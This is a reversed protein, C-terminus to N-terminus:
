VFHAFDPWLTPDFDQCLSVTRKVDEEFYAALKQREAPEPQPIAYVGKNVRNQYDRARFRDDVGLFRYALALQAEPEKLLHEYQLLLIQDRSFYQYLRALGISYLSHLVAETYFSFTHLLYRQKETADRFLHRGRKTTLHNLHSLFRDIPNRLILLIKANPAALALQELCTPYALYQVSFEGCIVGPPTAFAAHYTAIADGPLNRYQFHSFYQTEKRNPNEFHIRPHVIQPHQLLLHHFFSTGSKPSGIGVFDPAKTTWGHTPLPYFHAQGFPTTMANVSAPEIKQENVPLMKTLKGVTHNTKAKLKSALPVSRAKAKIKTQIKKVAAQHLYPSRARDLWWRLSRHDDAGACIRVMTRQFQPGVVKGQLWGMYLDYSSFLLKDTENRLKQHADIQFLDRTSTNHFLVRERSAAVHHYILDGYIGGMWYHFSRQNSRLLRHIPLGEAEAVWTFHALTDTREASHTNDFDFRLQHQEIFDVTTCLCSPHVHPRIASAMEARWVGAVAAGEDLKTLLETLWGSRLPHADSDMTVIYNAGEQRALHYLRQLPTRHPHHLTEYSAASLLTLRPQALLWAELAPDESRNNWVYIQYHPYQTHAAIKHLCLEVWRNAHPSNGGNVILIACKASMQERKRRLPLHM